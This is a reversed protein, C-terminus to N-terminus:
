DLLRGSWNGLTREAAFKLNPICGRPFVAVRGRRRADGGKMIANRLRGRTLRVVRTTSEPPSRPDQFPRAHRLLFLLDHNSSLGVPLRM